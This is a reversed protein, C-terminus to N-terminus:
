LYRISYKESLSDIQEETPEGEQYLAAMEAFYNDFDGPLITDIVISPTDGVNTFGHAIGRPLLATVGPVALMTQDGLTVEIEGQLLYVLEDENEHIHLAVGKGPPTIIEIVSFVNNTDVSKVKHIFEGGGINLRDGGDPLVVIPYQKFAQGEEDLIYVQDISPVSNNVSM